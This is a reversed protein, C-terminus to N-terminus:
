APPRMRALLLAIVRDHAKPMEELLRKFARPDFALLRMATEAVVSANRPRHEILAMEGVMSGPGLTAVHEGGVYIGAQGRLIVYCELGVRGQDILLAGQEAVTPEALAAVRELDGDSFGDFFAARRLDEIVGLLGDPASRRPGFASASGSRRKRIV